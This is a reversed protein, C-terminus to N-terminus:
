SSFIAAAAINVRVSMGVYSFVFGKGLKASAAGWPQALKNNSQLLDPRPSVKSVSGTGVSASTPERLDFPLLPFGM